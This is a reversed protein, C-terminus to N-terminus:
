QARKSHQCFIVNPKTQTRITKRAYRVYVKDEKALSDIFREVQSSDCGACFIFLIADCRGASRKERDHTRMKVVSSEQKNQLTSRDEM